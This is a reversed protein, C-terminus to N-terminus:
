QQLGVELTQTATKNFRSTAIVTVKNVGPSLQLQDFFRGDSRVLVGTGNITVTADPDTKGLIDIRQQAFVQHNKPSDITLTPPYNLKLYQFGFYLLFVSICATVLIAIFRGPTLRFLTPNLPAAMGKPLLSSKTVEETQRRFFALIHRSNLGLFESYNKVFGKAYSLSPLSRFDDKEMAELFKARIKTAKEVDALSYNKIVRAEKLMEGVTKM